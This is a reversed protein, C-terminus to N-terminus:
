DSAEAKDLWFDDINEYISDPFRLERYVNCARPDEPNPCIPFDQEKQWELIRERKPPNYDRAKVQLILAKADEANLNKRLLKLMKDEDIFHRAVMVFTLRGYHGIDEGAELSDILHSMMVSDRVDESRTDDAYDPNTHRNQVDKKM